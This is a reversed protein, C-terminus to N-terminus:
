RCQFISLYSGAIQCTGGSPCSAGLTDCVLYGSGGPNSYPCSGSDVCDSWEGGGGTPNGHCCVQGSPCDNPGDCKEYYSSGSTGCSPPTTAPTAFSCGQSTSCTLNSGCTVSGSIGVTAFSRCQGGACGNPCTSTSTTGDTACTTLANSEFAECRTKGPYWQSNGDDCDGSNAVWGSPPSCAPTPSIHRNGYGDGDWDQWYNISNASCPGLQMNTCTATGGCSGCPKSAGDNNSWTTTSRSPTCIQCDGSTTGNPIFNEGIWCGTQCNGGSCVKGTGCSTGNDPICTGTSCSNCQGCVTNCCVGDAVIGSTCEYTGMAQSGNEKKTACTGATTNCYSGAGCETQTSCTKLCGTNTCQFAGCSQPTATSCKGTGDCTTAPTFAKGDSSCSAQTCVHNSSVKRCAGQGDCTGDNGCQNTQTEDSCTNHPDQGSVVPACTGDNKGTLTNVCANCGSCTTACCVGDICNGSSCDSAASCPSGVALSQKQDLPADIITNSGGSGIIGGLGGGGNGGNAAYIGGSGSFGGTGVTFSVDAIDNGVVSIDSQTDFQATGTENTQGDPLAAIDSRSLDPSSAESYEVTADLTSNKRDLCGSTVLFAISVFGLLTKFTM